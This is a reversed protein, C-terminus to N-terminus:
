AHAYYIFNNGADNFSGDDGPLTFGTSTPAGFNHANQGGNSNLALWQDNGSGWGRTTDLVFWNESLDINKIIVFRPQFGTTITQESDSGAYYGVKSVNTSAFLLAIYNWNTGDTDQGNVEGDEGVTFYTSTPATNNFRFVEATAEAANSELLLYKQEPNTGGNLGKHYVCWGYGVSRSKFLMMEPVANLSHPIQRGRVGDSLYTVVDFGAHRKFMFSQITSNMEKAWGVNSDFITQSWTDEDDTTNPRLYFGQTLRSSLTWHGQNAVVKNFAMDVIFGSDFTPITSSGSGTDMAFVDTGADAPKGCYGDSRRIAVYIYGNNDNHTSSATTIKFGTPTLDIRDNGTDEESNSNPELEPDNGGTVIGRMSDQLRWNGSALTKVLVWQPEFGLYVTPGNETNNGEYRGCKIVNQDEADGFVFGAPDDFPSDTSATPSGSATITGPTVTSGTTSSDNCCLLVTNTINTLPETPPKFSSTYVASGIVLRLNSIKGDWYDITSGIYTTATGTINTSDTASAVQTGNYFMKLSTGSRTVAVHTWQGIELGPGTLLASGGHKKFIYNTGDSQFLIGGNDTMYHGRENSFSDPNLWAEICFDGTGPRLSSSSSSPLSLYPGADFDVSRALANTSEGGAFFYGIYSTGTANVGTNSGLEVYTSTPTTDNWSSTGTGKDSNSNLKLRYENGVGRHYVMWDGSNNTSKVMILGPVCNLDHAIQRGATSNGDWTKIDFFGPAKRFTWHSYENSSSSNAVGEWQDPGLTFGNSNFSQMIHSNTTPSSSTLTGEYGNSNSQLWKTTGRVTDVFAHAGDNNRKKTWVLGGEGALDIGNNVAANAGTGVKLYSNFVDDVYPKTAVAAGGAGLLMQQIPSM